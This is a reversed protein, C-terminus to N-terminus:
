APESHKNTETVQDFFGTKKMFERAKRIKLEHIKEDLIREKLFELENLVLSDALSQNISGYEIMATRLISASRYLNIVQQIFTNIQKADAAKSTKRSKLLSKFFQAYSILAKCQSEYRKYFVVTNKPLSALQEQSLNTNSYIDIISEIAQDFVEFYEFFDGDIKKIAEDIIISTVHEVGFEDTPLPEDLQVLINKIFDDCWIRAAPFASLNVVYVYALDQKTALKEKEIIKLRIKYNFFAAIAAGFLGSLISIILTSYTAM